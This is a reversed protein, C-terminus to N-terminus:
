KAQKSLSTFNVVMKAAQARTTTSGPMFKGASGTAINLEYLMTIANVAEADYNGLDTYPAKTSAKYAVGTANKYAREIMLALQVRTVPKTPNFNGKDGKIIGYKYAADIEAKTQAAFNGIDGLPAAEDMKLVLTRVLIAAAQVRTLNQNADELSYATGLNRVMFQGQDVVIV